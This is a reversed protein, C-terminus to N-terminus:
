TPGTRAAAPRPGPWFPHEPLPLKELERCLAQLSDLDLALLEEPPEFMARSLRERLEIGRETLVVTKVRRDTSSARRQVLGREELRDVLWTVMSADCALSDAMARMPEPQDPDLVALAKVHGPTLGLERLLQAHESGQFKTFAFRAMRRWADTALEHRRARGQDNM